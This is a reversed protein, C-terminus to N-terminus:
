RRSLLLSCDAAWWGAAAWWEAAAVLDAVAVVERAMVVVVEAWDTAVVARAMVVAVVEVAM